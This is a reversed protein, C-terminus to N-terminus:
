LEGKRTLLRAYKDFTDGYLRTLDYADSYPLRGAQAAAVVTRGFRRGIRTNQTNWFNGGPEQREHRERERSMYRRYFAFFQESSLLGCDRARRAIVIPSVKFRRALGVIAGDDGSSSTWAGELWTAPVLFEAAVQNCFQEVDDDSPQTAELDFLASRGIWVHVLEHAITVMQAVRFDAGNVFILPAIRDVLVFGQFEDPDLKRKTSNGVVGNVFILIGADEIHDRFLRLADQYSSLNRAWGDSLGLEDRMRTALTEVDDGIKASGVFSIADHGEEILYERMWDQRRQMEFITEILNPTPARVGGDTRTRYDPLPLSESPPSELFLYGFPVMARKAFTQLQKLTPKSKGALWAGVAERYATEPLGSRDVAWRLLEPKVDVYQAM